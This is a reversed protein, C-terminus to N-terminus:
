RSRDRDRDRERSREIEADQDSLLERRFERYREQRRKTEDDTAQFKLQEEESAARQDAAAEQQHQAIEAREEQTQPKHEEGGILSEFISAIGDLAAGALGAVGGVARAAAPTAGPLRADGEFPSREGIERTEKGPRM